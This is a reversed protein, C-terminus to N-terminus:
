RNGAALFAGVVVAYGAILLWGQWKRTTGKWVTAGALVVAGAMATLEEWRFTLPLAHAFLLSLITVAPAVLLAM